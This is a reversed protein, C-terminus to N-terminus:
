DSAAAHMVAPASPAATALRGAELKASAPSLRVPAGEIMGEGPNTVVADDINLGSSIELETGMDNGITVRALHVHGQRIVAVQAGESNFILASGPIIVTSTEQALPLHVEGYMGAYLDGSKNPFLLECQLTRTGPDIAGATLYVKGAFNRGPYNRVQLTVPHGVQIDTAYAQPVSVFVRLPDTQAISFLQKGPGIDTPNLLAGNDYNRATITGSFPAYVKEFSQTVSLQQVNAEAQTQNAQAQALAAQADEVASRRTDVDTESVSGGGLQQADTYRKLTVAALDLDAKAKVVNAKAQELAAKSQALEADIEPTDIDALLQGEEVHAMIDVYWKKLYGNSRPYIDTAQNARVDCPLKVDRTGSASRPLTVDVIPAGGSMQATDAQTQSELHARPFYGILFMAIFIVLLAIGVGLIAIGNPRPLDTPIGEGPHAANAHDGTALAHEANPDAHHVTAPTVIPPHASPARTVDPSEEGNQMANYLELAAPRGHSRDVVIPAGTQLVSGPNGSHNDASM